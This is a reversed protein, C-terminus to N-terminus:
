IIISVLHIVFINTVFNLIRLSDTKFIAHNEITVSSNILQVQHLPEKCSM